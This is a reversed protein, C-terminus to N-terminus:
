HALLEGLYTILLLGASCTAGHLFQSCVLQSLGRETGLFEKAIHLISSRKQDMNTFNM